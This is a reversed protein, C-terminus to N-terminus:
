ADHVPAKEVDDDANPRICASSGPPPDLVPGRTNQWDLIPGGFRRQEGRPADSHRSDPHPANRSVRDDSHESGHRPLVQNVACPSEALRGNQTATRGGIYHGVRAAPVWGKVIPITDETAVAAPRDGIHQRASGSPQAGMTHSLRCLIRPTGPKRAISADAM